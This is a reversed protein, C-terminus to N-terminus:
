DNRVRKLGMSQLGRPEETWPPVSPFVWCSYQLPNCNGGEPSRGSEPILDPNRTDGAKAPPNKVMLVVTIHSKTGLISRRIDTIDKM